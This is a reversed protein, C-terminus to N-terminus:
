KNLRELGEKMKAVLQEKYNCDIVWQVFVECVICLVIAIFLFIEM